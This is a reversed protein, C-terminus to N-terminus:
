RAGLGERTHEPVHGTVESLERTGMAVINLGELGTHNGIVYHRVGAVVLETIATVHDIATAIPGFISEPSRQEVV